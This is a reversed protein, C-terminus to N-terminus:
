TGIMGYWGYWTMGKSWRRGGELGVTRHVTYNVKREARRDSAWRRRTEPYTYAPRGRAHMNFEM